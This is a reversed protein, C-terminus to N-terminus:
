LNDIIETRQAQYEDETIIGQALKDNLIRLAQEPTSGDSTKKYPMSSNTLGFLLLAVHFLSYSIINMAGTILYLVIEDDIYYAISLILLIAYFLEYALGVINAIVLFVKRAFGKAAEFATFIFLIMIAVDFILEIIEYADYSYHRISDLILSYLPSVAVLGFIIPVLFTAKPKNQFKLVYLNFLVYPALAILLGIIELIGPVRM